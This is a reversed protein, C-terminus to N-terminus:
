ELVGFILKRLTPSDQAFRLRSTTHHESCQTISSWQIMSQFESIAFNLYMSGTM